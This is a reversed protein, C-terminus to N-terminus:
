PYSANELRHRSGNGGGLLSVEAACAPVARRKARRPSVVPLTAAGREEASGNPGLRPVSTETAPVTDHPKRAGRARSKFETVECKRDPCCARGTEPTKPIKGSTVAAVGQQPKM